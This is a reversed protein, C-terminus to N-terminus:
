SVGGLYAEQVIPNARVESPLGETLKAGFDMVVVRDVLGMVFEMDHEVILITVGEDKLDRLQSALAHKEGRRLGAAPEDLVILVPDAALARAVEVMRQSGLPLNGAHVQAKELLGVRELQRLAEAKAQAEEGRDLRSAGFAFGSRTRVYTGLLVNDLLSMAPRLKVHQFTRAIGATAIKQQPLSTIDRGLFTIRGATPRQAGTILNFMTSKGAGNPGILAVIEGTKVDFSVDNVAVLGGFRKVAGEVILLPTGARPQSRRPLPPTEAPPPPVVRQPALRRVASMVGGRAHQLILILLISFAVIELQGANKSVHPLVDQFFNKLLTVIAAGIVAGYISTAGGVMAMLLYEISPRVEFPSPSVYRNMHAYLWGALGALMAAIVFIILRIRFLSVGLSAIMTAGGRLSRIARGERSDLLNSLLWMGAALFAWILYYIAFNSALSMGGLALPPIEKIGDHYGLGPINGFLFYIAIGWAVTSLPLFHGGLRLTVAGLVAAAAGTLCLALALGLWPDAGAHTTLWATAYAGIGVLSAQGFSTLGGFGTLLVLGLAVIAGIGVYNLLTVTFPAALVPATTFGIVVLALIAKDFPLGSV